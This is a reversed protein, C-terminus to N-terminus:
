SIPFVYDAHIKRYHAHTGHLFALGSIRKNIFANQSNYIYDDSVSLKKFVTM